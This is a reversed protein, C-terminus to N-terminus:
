KDTRLFCPLKKFIKVCLELMKKKLYQFENSKHFVVCFISVFVISCILIKLIVNLWIPFHLNVCILYCLGGIILIIFLYKFYSKFYELPSKKLGHKFIAYPIYWANTSIRAIATALYIGFLGWINGLIISFITNIIATFILIFQGYKFLGLTSKYMEVSSQMTVLYFNLALVFPISEPLVYNEGFLFRVMDSSVFVIGITAWGYVFFNALQLIKFFSYKKEENEIANLNGVSATLGGFMLNTISAITGSLLTYNSAAGVTILGDFYTIIINDTGNVFMGAVKSITLAKINKFLNRKEERDLPKIDKKVIYPYDKKAWISIIINFLFTGISQIILYGLYERFVLLYIIQFFSQGITIAYSLGQQVYNRQAAVFLSSRYSFFYTLCTNFLYIGYILYFNEKIGSTDGVIFGLFPILAVGIGAVAFGIIRYAKGYFQMLAAIKETDNEALPKYLAFVIATGIGLEALSLMYLVNSLLGNIGLYEVPLTRVFFWRCIFGLLANLIYGGIGVFINIFSYTTRSKNM